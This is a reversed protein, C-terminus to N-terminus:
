ALVWLAVGGAAALGTGAFAAIRERISFETDGRDCPRM